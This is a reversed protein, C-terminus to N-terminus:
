INMENKEDYKSNMAKEYVWKISGNKSIGVHKKRYPHSQNKLLALMYEISALKRSLYQQAEAAARKFLRTM